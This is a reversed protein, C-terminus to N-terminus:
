RTRQELMLVLNETCRCLVKQLTRENLPWSIFLLAIALFHLGWIQHESQDSQEAISAQGRDKGSQHAIVAELPSNRDGAM